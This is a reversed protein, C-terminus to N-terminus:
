ESKKDKELDIYANKIERFLMDRIAGSTRGAIRVFLHDMYKEVM